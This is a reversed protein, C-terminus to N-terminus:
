APLRVKTASNAGSLHPSTPPQPLADSIWTLATPQSTSAASFALPPPHEAVDYVLM